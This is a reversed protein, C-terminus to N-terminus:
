AASGAPNSGPSPQPMTTSAREASALAAPTGTYASIAPQLAGGIRAGARATWAM